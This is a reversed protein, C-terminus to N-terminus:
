RPSGGSPHPGSGRSCRRSFSAEVSARSGPSCGLGAALRCSGGCASRRIPRRSRTMMAAGRRSRRGCSGRLRCSSVVGLLTEFAQTPLKVAGGIAACPVSAIALPWFLRGRFHGARAFQVTAITAVVVNLSLATPRIVDPPLGAVAMAAIYGTAGAHGVSAYLLAIVFVAGALAAPAFTEVSVAGV